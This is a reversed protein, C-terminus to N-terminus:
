FDVNVREAAAEKQQNEIITQTDLEAQSPLYFPNAGMEYIRSYVIEWLGEGFIMLPFSVLSAILVVTYQSSSEVTNFSAKWM